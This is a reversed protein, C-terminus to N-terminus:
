DNTHERIYYQFTKSLGDELTTSHEWGFAKLKSDDILKQKMGVPKTLDYIFEGEFGIVRAVSDYYEKISYDKGLGVNLNQPMQDVRDIAFLIFDALDEAFMFERRATGDGWIEIVNKNKIVAEHIKRIVAPIMHSNTPDFKDFYGYLNCPIITKYNFKSNSNTIYECLRSATIKALAYGENTPELEGTLIQEETLPNQANRPYMCSSGLNILNKVGANMASTIVNLGIQTNEVLFKVPESINAQIGGVIGASHIVLDPKEKSLYSFVEQSKLLDLEDRLPSIFEVGRKQGLRLINKGVMGNAGTLLIKM